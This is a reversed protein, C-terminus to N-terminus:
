KMPLIEKQMTMNVLMALGSYLLYVALIVLGIGGILAFLNGMGANLASLALFGVAGSWVGVAAMKSKFHALWGAFLLIIGGVLYVWKDIAFSSAILEPPVQAGSNLMSLLMIGRVFNQGMLVGSLIANMTADVFDGNKYMIIVTILIVPYAALLWPLVYLFADTSFQGFLIPIQAFILLALVLTCAPVSSAWKNNNEM